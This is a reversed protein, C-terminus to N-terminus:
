FKLRGVMTILGGLVALMVVVPIATYLPSMARDVQDQRYASQTFIQYEGAEVEIIIGDDVAEFPVENGDGDVVIEAFPAAVFLRSRGGINDLTFSMSKGDDVMLDSIETHYTNQALTWYDYYPVISVGAAAYNNLWAEYNSMSISYSIAPDPDTEHTFTPYVMGAASANAWWTWYADCLNGVNKQGHVGIGGNRWVMGLNAYAYNAHTVNDNNLLSCWSTPSQGFMETITAHESRMIEIAQEMPKNSLGTSYHIGLEWGQSILQRLYDINDDNVYLVDAWITGRGGHQMLMEIGDEVTDLPHPGDLGYPTISPNSIPTVYQYAPVTQAISHIALGVGTEDASGVYPYINVYPNAFLNPEYKRGSVAPTELIKIGDIYISNTRAIGDSSITLDFRLSDAGDPARPYIPNTLYLNENTLAPDYYYSYIILCAKAGGDPVVLNQLKIAVWANGYYVNMLSNFNSRSFEVDMTISTQVAPSLGGIYLKGAAGPVANYEVARKTYDYSLTVNNTTYPATDLGLWMNDPVQFMTSYDQQFVVRDGIRDNSVAVSAASASPALVALSSLCMVLCLSIAALRKLHTHNNKM